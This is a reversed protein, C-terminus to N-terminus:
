GVNAHGQHKPQLEGDHMVDAVGATRAILGNARALRDNGFPFAIVRIKLQLGEM